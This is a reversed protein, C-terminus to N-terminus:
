YDVRGAADRVLHANESVWALGGSKRRHVQSVFAIVRGDREILQKFVERRGAEVYWGVAIDAVSALHEAETDYGNIRALALNARLIRGEPSSRYAGIPLLDFLTQFDDRM